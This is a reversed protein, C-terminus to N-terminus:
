LREGLLDANTLGDPVIEDSMEPPVKGPAEGGAPKTKLGVMIPRAPMEAPATRPTEAKVPEM